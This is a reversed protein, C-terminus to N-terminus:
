PNPNLNQSPIGIKGWSAAVVQPLSTPGKLKTGKINAYSFCVQDEGRSTQPLGTTAPPFVAPGGGVGVISWECDKISYGYKALCAGGDNRVQKLITNPITEECESCAPFCPCNEIPRLFIWTENDYRWSGKYLPTDKVTTTGDYWAFQNCFSGYVFPSTNPVAFRSYLRSSITNGFRDTPKIETQYGGQPYGPYLIYNSGYQDYPRFYCEQKVYSSDGERITWNLADNICNMRDSWCARINGTTQKTGNVDSVLQYILVNWTYRYPFPGRCPNTIVGGLPGFMENYTYTIEWTGAVYPIENTQNQARCGSTLLALLFLSSIIKM